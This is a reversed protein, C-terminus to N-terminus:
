LDLGPIKLAETLLIPGDMPMEGYFYPPEKLFYWQGDAFIYEHRLRMASWAKLFADEVNGSPVRIREIDLSPDKRDRHYAVTVGPARGLPFDPAIGYDHPEGKKPALREKIICLAGLRVLAGAKRVTNYNELLKKGTYSLYGDYHVFILSLERGKLIGVAAHTSM